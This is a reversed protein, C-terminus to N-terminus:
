LAAADLADRMGDLVAPPVCEISLPTEEEPDDVRNYVEETVQEGTSTIQRLTWAYTRVCRDLHGDAFEAESIVSTRPLPSSDWEVPRAVGVAACIAAGIDVAHQLGSTIGPLAEPIRGAMLVKTGGILTTGKAREPDRGPGVAVPATGNDSYIIVVAEPGVEDLLEGFVTDATRLMALYKARPTSHIGPRNAGALLYEYEQPIVHLPTHPANLAVHLFRPYQREQWWSIAAELQAGTAYDTENKMTAANSIADARLWNTYSDLNLPSGAFWSAYGREYPGLEWLSGSPPAGCHWKGVLGTDYGAALLVSALTPWSAPPRVLSYDFAGMDAITGLAKGFAGYLIGARTQGCVPHSFAQIFDLASERFATIRPCTEPTIDALSVDDLGVLLVDRLSV